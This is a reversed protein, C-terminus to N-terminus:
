HKTLLSEIENGFAGSIYIKDFAWKPNPIFNLPKYVSFESWEKGEVILLLWTEDYKLNYNTKILRDNKRDIANELTSSELSGSWFASPRQWISQKYKHNRLIRISSTYKLLDKEPIFYELLTENSILQISEYVKSFIERAIENIKGKKTDLICNFEIYVKIAPLGTDEYIGQAINIVRDYAKCYSIIKEGDTTTLITQEIGITKNKTKLILDPPDNPCSSLEVYEFDLHKLFQETQFLEKESKTM